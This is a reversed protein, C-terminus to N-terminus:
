VHARGIQRYYSPEVPTFDALRTIEEQAPGYVELVAEQLLEKPCLDVLYAAGLKEVMYGMVMASKRLSGGVYMRSDILEAKHKPLASYFQHHTPM